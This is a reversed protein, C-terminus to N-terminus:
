KFFYQISKKYQCFFYKESESRANRSFSYFKERDNLLSIIVDLIEDHKDHSINFGFSSNIIEVPGGTVPGIPIAGNAMGEVLTLGFTEIWNSTSLNLVFSSKQYLKRLNVPRNYMTVNRPIERNLLFANFHAESCNLVMHFNIDQNKDMAIKAIALYDDVGKYAVLSSLFIVNRGSYKAEIDLEEVPTILSDSLPNYIVYQNAIDEFKENEFLYNSVYIVQSACKKICYRLFKKLLVPKISTEHIYVTVRVKMKRAALMAGFPLMTNVVVHQNCDKNSKLLRYLKFFITINAIVFQYLKVLKSSNPTYDFQHYKVDDIASLAGESDSTILHKEGSVARIMERLVRPSGSFDNYLHVFYHLVFNEKLQAM